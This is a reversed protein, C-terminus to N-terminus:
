LLQLHHSSPETQKTPWWKTENPNKWCLWIAIVKKQGYHESFDNFVSIANREETVPKIGVVKVVQLPKKIQPNLGSNITAIRKTPNSASGVAYTGDILQIVFVFYDKVEKAIQTPQSQQQTTIM